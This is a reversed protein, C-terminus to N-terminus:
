SITTVASVMAIFIVGVESSRGDAMNKSSIMRFQFDRRQVTM